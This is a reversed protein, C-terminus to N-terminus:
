HKSEYRNKVTTSIFTSLGRGSLALEKMRRINVEGASVNTYTYDTGDIFRVTIWGIGAEYAVVGSNGARNGYPIM